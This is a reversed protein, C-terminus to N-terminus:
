LDLTQTAAGGPLRRYLLFLLGALVLCGIGGALAMRGSEAGWSPASMAVFLAGVCSLAIVFLLLLMRQFAPEINPKDAAAVPTQLQEFFRQVRARAGRDQPLFVSALFIGTCVVITLGTAAEWSVQPLANFTLGTAVGALLSATAGTATARPILVGLVIPIVLPIAFLGTFLKSAEFAGGFREVFLAGGIILGGVLLTAYRASRMLEYETADPRFIRQYIDKTVVSAMVNYESDLSSMTAAFMAALMIGMIGAPLLQLAVGVYAMEPNDLGPIIAPALLPPLLWLPPFIFFLAATLLGMKRGAAEDRVSYFRQIFAWNGNNKITFMVYYVALFLLEGRSGGFYSLHGPRAAEIGAWGGAAEYSLPVLLFTATILVVFQVVDTMVVAWLGGVVTYLVVVIGALLISTDLGLPTAASLFVGIAYLRVMNDLVRFGLGGWSFLQRVAPSFREELFEVPSTIGARRWIKAFVFAGILTAPVACWIVTVAVLGDEYAIGAHAVFVFASFLSMFNSIGGVYWPIASGGKFYDAVDKVFYGLSLGMGAMIVMYVGIAVYDLTQLTAIM